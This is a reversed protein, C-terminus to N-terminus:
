PGVWPWTPGTYTIPEDFKPEPEPEPPKRVFEKCERRPCFVCNKFRDGNVHLARTHGCTSCQDTPLDDPIRTRKKM